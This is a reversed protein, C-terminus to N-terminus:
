SCNPDDIARDDHDDGSRGEIGHTPPEAVDVVRLRPVLASHLAVRSDTGAGPVKEM